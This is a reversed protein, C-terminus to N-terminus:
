ITNLKLELALPSGMRRNIPNFYILSQKRSGRDDKFRRIGNPMRVLQCRAWAASDAGLSVALSFFDRIRNEDVNHCAFWGHISKNGSDVAMVLPAFQALHNLIAVQQDKTITKDDIEVVIHQRPGTNDLSRDSLRGNMTKGKRKKMSSPVIFSATKLVWRSLKNTLVSMLQTDTGSNFERSVCILPDGPFLKVLIEWPEQQVSEPSCQQLTTVTAHSNEAIVQQQKVKNVAPWKPTAPTKQSSSYASCVAEWVEGPKFYRPMLDEEAEILQEAQEDTLGAEKCRL